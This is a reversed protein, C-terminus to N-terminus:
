RGAAMRAADRARAARLQGDGDGHWDGTVAWDLLRAADAWRREAFALYGAGARAPGLGPFRALGDEVYRRGRALDGVLLATVTAEVYYYANNPDLALGADFEAFAEAPDSLGESAMEGLLRGLNVRQFGSVPVLRRAETFAQRARLWFGRRVDGQAARAASQAAAGLRVWHIDREPDFCVADEALALATRPEDDQLREAQWSAHSALWPAVAGRWMFGLTVAGIALWVLVWWGSRTPRNEAQRWPRPQQLGSLVAALTVALTGCGATTFSFFDEVTFGVLGAVVAVVFPRQELTTERWARVAARGVGFALLAVAAAGLLGQTALTQLLENHAKAPSADWEVQGFELGRRSPFALQFADLGCGVIPHETFLDWAGRWLILRGGAEPTQRLRNGLPGPVVAITGVAMLSTLGLGGLVQWRRGGSWGLVLILTVAALALWAGRSLTLAVVAVGAVALAAYLWGQPAHRRFARAARELVLPLVMVVYAGLINPHGLPGFPRVFGDIDSTREWAMPDVHIVQLFAYVSAVALAAVPALTIRRGDDLDRCLALSAFFLGTYALVTVLGAFSEHAGWLSTRPSLSTFTSAIASVVYLVVGWAVPQRATARLFRIAAGLGGPSAVAALGLGTLALVTLGLLVVKNFEFVELTEPWFVLPSLFLHTVLL